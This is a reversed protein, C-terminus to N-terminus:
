RSKYFTVKITNDIIEVNQISKLYQKAWKREQMLMEEFLALIHEKFYLPVPVLGFRASSIEFILTQTKKEADIKLKPVICVELRAPIYKIWKDKLVVSLTKDDKINIIFDFNPNIEPIKANKAAERKSKKWKRIREAEKQEYTQPRPATDKRELELRSTGGLQGSGSSLKSTGGLNSSSNFSMATSAAKTKPKEHEAALYNAAMTAEAPTFEFTLKGGYKKALMKDIEICTNIVALREEPDTIKQMEPFGWPCFAASLFVIVLIVIFANVARKATKKTQRGKTSDLLAKDFKLKTGCNRCFVTGLKNSCGCKQCDVNQYNMTDDKNSTFDKEEILGNEAPL